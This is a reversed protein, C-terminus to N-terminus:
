RNATPFEAENPRHTSSIAEIMLQAIQENGVPTLHGWTDIWIQAETTDFAGSLDFLRDEAAAREHIREYTKEFLHVLHSDMLLVWDLGHIMDQEEPTLRKQGALIHPQWFFAFDFRYSEALSEVIRYNHLYTREIEGALQDTEPRADIETAPPPPSLLALFRAILQYSSLGRVLTLFAPDRRRFIESVQSLNQHVVPRGTQTAALVENVGEYSIVLHPLNDAQLELLLQILSQTSVFANEGFNTVCVPREQTGQLKEQLYAPLTGWDPSGWGWVSSGGLVFVRYSDGGCRAGPTRRIGREDVNLTEGAFTPSRWIVYPRYDKRLASRLEQWYKAGWDQSAYYPLSQYYAVLDNPRGLLRAVIRKSTPLTAIAILAASVVELSVLIVLTNLLVLAFGRYARAIRQGFGAILALVSAAVLFTIRGEDTIAALLALPAAAAAALVRLRQVLRRHFEPQPTM